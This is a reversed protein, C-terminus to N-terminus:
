NKGNEQNQAVMRDFAEKGAFQILAQKASWLKAAEARETNQANRYYVDALNIYTQVSKPNFSLTKIFYESALDDKALKSYCLGINNLVNPNNNDQELVLNFADIAKEYNGAKFADLATQLDNNIKNEM